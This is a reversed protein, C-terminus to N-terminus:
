LRFRGGAGFTRQGSSNDRRGLEYNDSGSRDNRSNDTCIRSNADNRSSSPPRNYIGPSVAPSQITKFYHYEVPWLTYSRNPSANYGYGAYNRVRYTGSEAQALRAEAEVVRTELDALREAQEVKAHRTELQEAYRLRAIVLQESSPVDPYRRAFDEWFAVQFALPATQFAADALKRAMLKEGEASLQARRVAQEERVRTANAVRKAELAAYDDASLLAVRSVIGSRLEIEGREYYLLHRDGLRLQGCPPGMKSSVEKFTDGTQVEAASLNLALTVLLAILATKM